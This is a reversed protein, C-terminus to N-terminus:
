GNSRCLADHTLGAGNRRIRVLASVAMLAFVVPAEGSPEPVAAQTAGFNQKLLSFDALDVRGDASFDGQNRYQGTGFNAKLTGFDGLDVAGDFNTDGPLFDGNLDAIWNPGIITRGDDSIARVELAGLGLANPDHLETLGYDNTLVQVLDRMGRVEDWIFGLRAGFDDRTDSNGVVVKGDGSVGLARSVAGGDLYGLGVLGAESSWRFAEM